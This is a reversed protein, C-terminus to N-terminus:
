APLPLAHCDRSAHGDLGARQEEILQRLQRRGGHAALRNGAASLENIRERVREILDTLEDLRKRPDALSFARQRWDVALVRRIRRYSIAVSVSLVAARYFWYFDFSIVYVGLVVPWRIALPVMSLILVWTVLGPVMELIRHSLKRKTERTPTVAAVVSELASSERATAGNM